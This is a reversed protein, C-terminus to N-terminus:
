ASTTRTGSRWAADMGSWCETAMDAITSRKSASSLGAWFGSTRSNTLKAGSPVQREGGPCWSSGDMVNGFGGGAVGISLNRAKGGPGDNGCSRM